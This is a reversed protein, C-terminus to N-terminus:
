TFIFPQLKLAEVLEEKSNFFRTMRIPEGGLRAFLAWEGDENNEVTLTVLLSEKM